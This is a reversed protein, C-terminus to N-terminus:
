SNGRLGPCTYMKTLHIITQWDEECWGCQQGHLCASGSQMSIVAPVVTCTSPNRRRLIRHKWTLSWIQTIVLLCDQRVDEKVIADDSCSILITYPNFSSRIVGLIGPPQGTLWWCSIYSRWFGGAITRCCQLFGGVDEQPGVDCAPIPILLSRLLFM